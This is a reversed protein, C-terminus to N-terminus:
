LYDAHNWPWGEPDQAITAAERLQQARAMDYAAAKASAHREAEQESLGHGLGNWFADSWITYRRNSM